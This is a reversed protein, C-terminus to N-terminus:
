PGQQLNKKEKTKPFPTQKESKMRILFGCHIDAGLMSLDKPPDAAM